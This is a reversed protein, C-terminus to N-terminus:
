AAGGAAAIGLLKRVQEATEDNIEGESKLTELETEILAKDTEGVEPMLNNEQVVASILSENKAIGNVIAKAEENTLQKEEETKTEDNARANFDYLAEVAGVASGTDLATIDFDEPLSIGESGESGDGTMGAAGVIITNIIKKTAEDKLEGDQVEGITKLMDVLANKGEESFGGGASFSNNIADLNASFSNAVKVVAKVANIASDLSIPDGDKDKVTTLMNYAWGGSQTYFECMFSKQYDDLGAEAVKDQVEASIVPNGDLKLDALSTMLTNAQTLLGNVPVCFAFAIVAGQIIGVIGGLLARKKAGKKVFLKMIPFIIAWGVFKFAIFLALFCVVNIIIRVIVFILDTLSEPVSAGGNSLLGALYEELPQEQIKIGLLLNVFVQRLFWAALVAAVVLLLRLFSRNFGRALGMVLGWVVFFASIGLVIYNIM